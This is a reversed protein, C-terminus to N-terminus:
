DDRRRRRSPSRSRSRSYSSSDSSYDRRSRKRSSHKKHRKSKKEKKEKKDKKERKSTRDRLETPSGGMARLRSVFDSSGFKMGAAGAGQAEGEELDVGVDDDLLLDYSKGGSGYQKVDGVHHGWKIAGAKVTEGADAGVPRYSQEGRGGGRFPPDYSLNNPDLDEGNGQDVSKMSLSVRPPAGDMKEVDVVKVYVEDGEAVVGSIIAEKEEDEADRPVDLYQSIQTRHVLGGRRFGKIDVFVGVAKVRAVRAKYVKHLEPHSVPPGDRDGDGERGGGGFRPGPRGDGRRDEFKKAEMKAGTPDLDAGTEQDVVSADLSVKWDGREERVRTVKAWVVSGVPFFYELAHRISEEDDDRGFRADGGVNDRHVLGDRNWGDIRVFVGFGRVSRTTGRVIDGVAFPPPASAPPATGRPAVDDDSAPM